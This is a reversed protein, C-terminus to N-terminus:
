ALTAITVSYLAVAVVARRSGGARTSSKARRKGVRGGGRDSGRSGAWGVRQCGFIGRDATCHKGTTPWTTGVWSRSMYCDNSAGDATIQRNLRNGQFESGRGGSSCNDFPWRAAWSVKNGCQGVRGLGWCGGGTFGRCLFAARM